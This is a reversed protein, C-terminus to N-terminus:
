TKAFADLRRDLAALDHEEHLARLMERLAAEARVHDPDQLFAADVKTVHVNEGVGLKTLTQLLVRVPRRERLQVHVTLEDAAGVDHRVKVFAALEAAHETSLVAPLKVPTM